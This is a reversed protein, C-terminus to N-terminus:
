AVVVPTWPQAEVAAEGARDRIITPAKGDGDILAAAYSFGVSRPAAPGLRYVAFLAVSASGSTFARILFSRSRFPPPGDEPVWNRALLRGAEEVADYAKAALAPHDERRIALDGRSQMLDADFPVGIAPEAAGPEGPGLRWLRGINGGFVDAILAGAGDFVALHDETEVATGDDSIVFPANRFSQVIAEESFYEAGFAEMRCPPLLEGHPREGRAVARLVALASM